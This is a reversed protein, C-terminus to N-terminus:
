LKEKLLIDWGWRVGWLCNRKSAEQQIHRGLKQSLENSKKHSAKVM